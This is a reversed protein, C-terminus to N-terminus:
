RKRKTKPRLKTFIATLTAILAIYYPLVPEAKAPVQIPFSYGGVPLVQKIHQITDTTNTGVYEPDIYPPIGPAYVTLTVIYEGPADYVHRVTKGTGFTGDGFDWHYETIPCEDDGDFSPLSASADFYVPEYIYPTEPYETFNATPSYPKLTTAKVQNSNTSQDSMDIVKITFYYETGSTLGTITYSTVLPNTINDVPTGLMGSANSQCVVYQLFDHDNNTTWTLTVSDSTINIPQFLTVPTPPNNNVYYIISCAGVNQTEDILNAEVLYFGDSVTETNWPVSWWGDSAFNDHGIPTYAMDFKQKTEKDKPSLFFVKSIVWTEKKYTVSFGEFNCKVNPNSKFKEMSSGKYDEIDSTCTKLDLPDLFSIKPKDTKKEPLTIGTATVYHCSDDATNLVGDKGPKQLMLIVSEGEKIMDAIGKSEWKGEGRKETKWTPGWSEKTKERQSGWNFRFTYAKDLGQERLFKALGNYFDIHSTGDDVSTKMYDSEALHKALDEASNYNKILREDKLQKGEKTTWGNGLRWIANAASTPGCFGNVGNAASKGVDTQKANGFGEQKVEAASGTYELLMSNIDNATTNVRFTMTGNIMDLYFPEYIDPLPPSPDYYITKIDFGNLGSSDIMTAKLYYYGEDLGTVNWNINWGTGGIANTFDTGNDGNFQVGEFGGFTDTGITSWNIQDASYEFLTSIVDEEGTLDVVRVEVVDGYVVTVNPDLSYCEESNSPMTIYPKPPLNEAKVLRVNFALTLMSTLLLTLIIASATKKEM